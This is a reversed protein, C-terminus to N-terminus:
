DDGDGKSEWYYNEGTTRLNEVAVCYLPLVYKTVADLIEEKTDAEIFYESGCCEKRPMFNIASWGWPENEKEPEHVFCRVPINMENAATIPMDGIDRLM